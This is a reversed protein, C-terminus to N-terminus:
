DALIQGSIIFMFYRNIEVRKPTSKIVIVVPLEFIHLSAHVCM